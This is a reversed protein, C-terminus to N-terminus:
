QDRKLYAKYTQNFGDGADGSVSKLLFGRFNERPTFYQDLQERVTFWDLSKIQLRAPTRDNLVYM